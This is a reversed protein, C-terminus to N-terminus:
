LANFLCIADAITIGGSLNCDPQGASLTGNLENFLTIADAITLSGNGNADGDLLRGVPLSRHSEYDDFYAVGSIASTAGLRVQEVSGTGSAFTADPDDVTSDSNVWLSAPANAAWSVEISNWHTKDAAVSANGGDATSINFNAGDYTINFLETGAEDSYATFITHTGAELDKPFVYFRAIFTAGATPSNDVVHGTGQVDLGCFGSVRPIGEVAPDGTTAGAATSDWAASSCALTSSVFFTGALLAAIM